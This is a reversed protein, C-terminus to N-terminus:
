ELNMWHRAIARNLDPLVLEAVLRVTNVVASNKPECMDPLPRGIPPLDRPHQAVPMSAQQVAGEQVPSPPTPPATRANRANPPPARHGGVHERPRQASTENGTPRTQRSRCTRRQRPEPDDLPDPGTARARTNWPAPKAVGPARPPGGPDATVTPDGSPHPGGANPRTTPDAASLLPTRAERPPRPPRDPETIRATAPPRPPPKSSRAPREHASSRRRRERHANQAAGVGDQPERGPIPQPENTCGRPPANSPVLTRAAAPFGFRSGGPPGRSALTLRKGSWAGGQRNRSM